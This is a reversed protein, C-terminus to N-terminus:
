CPYVLEHPKFQQKQEKGKEKWTLLGGTKHFKHHVQLALLKDIVLSELFHDFHSKQFDGEHRPRPPLQPNQQLGHAKHRM